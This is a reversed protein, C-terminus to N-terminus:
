GAAALASAARRERMFAGSAELLVMVATIIILIDIFVLLYNGSAYLDWLQYLSSLFAMSTVFVMPIM